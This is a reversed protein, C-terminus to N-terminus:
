AGKDLTLVKECFLNYLYMLKRQIAINGCTIVCVGKYNSYTPKGETRKDFAVYKFRELPINLEKSWYKKMKEADQDMRLHLDCRITDENIGYNRKLVVIIFKLIKPDSSAMSTTDNKAGEGLYLMAFALDLVPGSIEIKELTALASQKAELLRMAKKAQHAEVAKVRAKAWGDQKNRMLRLRQEETLKVDKFWGSLTSRPIGLKREIVTMSIGTKRLAVATEKYEFWRSKM